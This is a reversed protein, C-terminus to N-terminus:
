KVTYGLKLLVGFNQPLNKGTVTYIIDGRLGVKEMLKYAVGVNLDLYDTGSKLIKTGAAKGDGITMSELGMIGKCAEM